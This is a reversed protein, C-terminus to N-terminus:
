TSYLQTLSHLSHTWHDWWRMEKEREERGWREITSVEECVSQVFEQLWSLDDLSFTHTPTSVQLTTDRATIVAHHAASGRKSSVGERLREDSGVQIHLLDLMDGSLGPWERAKVSVSPPVASEKEVVLSM